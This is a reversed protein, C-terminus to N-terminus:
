RGIFRNMLTIDLSGMGTTYDYDPTASYTGNVGSLVDHYGGVIETPPPGNSLPGATPNQTYIKYLAPGAFGLSNNHASQLRAFSGMALPSSESTGGIGCPSTCSGNVFQLPQQTYVLYGGSNPDGAMAIDPVGRGVASAPQVGTQWFMPSEFQSIGGGGSNWAAEGLYSFDNNSTATTGGVAIAYRSAAPYSVFPPGSGPVGNTPALACSSGTDGSSAFMTQGHAAAQAFLNDIVTMAGDLFPSFECEGFSSNGLKAVNQTAWKSYELAIDSDTLSTTAYLYLGKVNGAIGTSSQTDLDWEGVGSTDPSPLGVKVVSVPVQPLGLQTEAYRLDSVTQSVDGEAMVGITTASGTPTSGADYFKQVARADFSRLCPTGAPAPNAPFCDTPAYAVKAANNLGLVAVVTNGLSQPVLAPLTNAYVTKGALSFSELSTHFASKIQAVTADASILLNNPETAINKFGQATLYSVVAGTESSTPAYTSLFQGDSITQGSAILGDLQAQNHMGLGLRVTITKTADLAGLDSANAVTVGQTKTPAWGAPVAIASATRLSHDAAGTSPLASQGGHGSCSAMLTGLLLATASLKKKKM